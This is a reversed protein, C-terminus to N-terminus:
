RDMVAGEGNCFVYGYPEHTVQRCARASSLRWTAVVADEQRIAGGEEDTWGPFQFHVVHDDHLSRKTQACNGDITCTHALRNYTWVRFGRAVYKDVCNMVKQSLPSAYNIIGVRRLTLSYLCVIGHPAIYNMVLTSHFQLIPLLPSGKSVIVNIKQGRSNSLEFIKYIADVEEEYHSVRSRRWSDYLITASFAVRLRRYGKKQFYSVVSLHYDQSAFIDIDTPEFTRAFLVHLPFSGSMLSDTASLMGLVSDRKLKFTALYEDLRDYLIEGVEEKTAIAEAVLSTLDEIGLLTMIARRDEDGIARLNGKEEETLRYEEGKASPEEDEEEDSSTSVEETSYGGANSSGSDDGTTSSAYESSTGTVDNNTIEQGGRMPRDRHEEAIDNSEGTGSIAEEKGEDGSGQGASSPSRDDDTEKLSEHEEHSEPYLTTEAQNATEQTSSEEFEADSNTSPSSGPRIADYYAAQADSDTPSTAPSIADYYASRAEEDAEEGGNTWTRTSIADYYASRADEEADKTTYMTTDLKTLTRTEEYAKEKPHNPSETERDNESTASEKGALKRDTVEGGGFRGEHEREQSTAELCTKKKAQKTITGKKEDGTGATSIDSVRPRKGLAGNAGAGLSGDSSLPEFSAPVQNM